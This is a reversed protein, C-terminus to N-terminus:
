PYMTFIGHNISLEGTVISACSPYKAIMPFIGKLYPAAYGMQYACLCTTYQWINDRQYFTLSSYYNFNYTPRQMNIIIEFERHTNNDELKMNSFVLVDM